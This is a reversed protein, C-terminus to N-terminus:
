SSIINHLYRDIRDMFARVTLLQPDSPAKLEPHRAAVAM